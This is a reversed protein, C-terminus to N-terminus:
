AFREALAEARAEARYEAAAAEDEAWDQMLLAIIEEDDNFRDELGVPLCTEVGHKGMLAISLVEISAPEPPSTRDGAYGNHRAYRIVAPWEHEVGALTALIETKFTHDTSM